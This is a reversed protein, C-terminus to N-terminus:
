VSVTLFHFKKFRKTHCNMKTLCVKKNLWCDPVFFIEQRSKLEIFLTIVDLAGACMDPLTYLPWPRGLKVFPQSFLYSFMTGTCYLDELFLVM